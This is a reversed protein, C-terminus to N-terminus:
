KGVDDHADDGGANRVRGTLDGGKHRVSTAEDSVRGLKDLRSQTRSCTPVKTPKADYDLQLSWKRVEFPYVMDM